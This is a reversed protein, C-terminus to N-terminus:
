EGLAHLLFDLNAEARNFEHTGRFVEFHFRAAHGTARYLARVKKAELRAGSPTFLEDKDGTEIWLARPCVLAALEADLFSQALGLAVAAPNPYTHRDNFFASTVLCRIRPDLAAAYLGYCGGYSLGALGVPATRLAPVALAADLARRLTLTQLAPSNHGLLNLRATLDEIACYPEAHDRWLPLQPVLVACHRRRLRTVLDNYNRTPHGLGAIKEITGLGGHLAIVLPPPTTRPKAPLFLAAFSGYEGTVGFRVLRLEGLADRGLTRWSTKVKPKASDTLPWGLLTTLRHAASKQWRALHAADPWAAARTTDAAATHRALERNLSAVLHKRENLFRASLARSPKM